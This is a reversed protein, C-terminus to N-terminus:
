KSTLTKKKMLKPIRDKQFHRYILCTIKTIPTKSLSSSIIPNKKM